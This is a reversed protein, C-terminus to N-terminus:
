KTKRELNMANVAEAFMQATNLQGQKYALGICAVWAVGWGLRRM